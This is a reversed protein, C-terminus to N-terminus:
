EEVVEGNTEIDKIMNKIEGIKLTVNKIKRLADLPVKDEILDFNVKGDEAMEFFEIIDADTYHYQEKVKEYFFKHKNIERWRLKDLVAIDSNFKRILMEREKVSLERPDIGQNSIEVKELQTLDVEIGSDLSKTNVLGDGVFLTDTGKLVNVYFSTGRVTALSTPTQVSYTRTGTIRAIRNWAEGERLSSKVENPNLTEIVVESNPGLNLVESEYFIITAHSGDGTKVIDGQSLKMENEGIIFGKGSDVMVEGEDVYLFAETTDSAVMSYLSVGALLIIVLVILSGHLIWRTKRKSKKSGQKKNSNKQAM